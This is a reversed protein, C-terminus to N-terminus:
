MDITLQSHLDTLELMTGMELVLLYYILTQYTKPHFVYTISLFKEFNKEINNENLNQESIFKKFYNNLIIDM